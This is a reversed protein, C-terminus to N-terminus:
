FIKSPVVDLEVWERYVKFLTENTRIATYMEPPLEYPVAVKRHDGKLNFLGEPFQWVWTHAWASVAEDATTFGAEHVAPDPHNKGIFAYISFLLAHINVNIPVMFAAQAELRKTAAARKTEERAKNSDIVYGGVAVGSAAVTAAGDLDDLDFKDLLGSKETAESAEKAVEKAEKMVELVEKVVSTDALLMGQAKSLLESGTDQMNAVLDTSSHHAAQQAALLISHANATFDNFDAGMRLSCKRGSRLSAARGGLPAGPAFARGIELGLAVLILTRM